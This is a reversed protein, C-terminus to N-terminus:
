KAWFPVRGGWAWFVSFYFYSRLIHYEAHVPFLSILAYTLQVTMHVTCSAKLELHVELIIHAPQVWQCPWFLGLWVSLANVLVSKTPPYTAWFKHSLRFFVVSCQGATIPGPSDRWSVNPPWSLWFCVRCLTGFIADAPFSPQTHTRGIRIDRIAGM